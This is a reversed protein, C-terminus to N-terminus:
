NAKVWRVADGIVMRGSSQNTLEVKASDSSIYYRGLMNWGAEANQYDVTIEDVGEDHYIKYHMDRFVNDGGEDNKDPPPPAGGSGGSRVVMRNGTKGIYCYIDYFDPKDIKTKWTVSREGKSSRTYVSSRIYKGYYSSLAVKQWYEPAWFMNIQEYENRYRNTIKFLKKLPSQDKKTGADFGPDENDTILEGPFSYQPLASLIEEGETENVHNKSKKIEDVPLIIEGPVNKSFLTNVLMERPQVDLIIRIKRAERPGLVIIRSIDSAEMGRGQVSITFGGSIAGGQYMGTMQQGQGEGGTRFSVNFIGAVLEPNSATFTILYRVRDGIVIENAQLESFLFGPQEKRNFWDYLYPYFEFGFKDKMDKNLTTIDVSQFRHDDIYKHFWEKFENIGAKARFLNFLYDGKVTIVARITDSGPNKALIDRFSAERFILNARDNESLGGSIERFDNQPEVQKQLHAEFVANIVPFESSYFNNKFFYFSPGLRYRVPENRAVGNSYIFNEGSIFTNRIFDTFLRVQLEKDTIIQNNRIMRKKQRTFRRQFGANQLTSLKEPLLVMSPQLEARTQTSMRPYSYFQVPVEVLGLTRFPYKTSFSTELERMIGSVLTGLTDKILSLDKKYYDHGPFYYAIYRVSDVILTDSRYNGIALTIGTLPSEPSFVFWGNEKKMIGQSVATLGNGSKVRLSYNTFDIKLRAPDSPYYNLGPVPYWHSEPTLLVYNETLFAQRKNVNLLQDIRYPNEKINDSYDPFSFSENISGKYSINISDSEGPLLANVPEAEIIHGTTKYRINKGGSRVATVNLYPNLSFLYRSLAEKNNNIFKLEASAEITKKDHKLEISADKLSVFNGAEFQRNLDIVQKKEKINGKYNSYTSYACVVAGMLFAIMFVTAITTLVKSQPLRKFLLVTSLVLSLGLFFYLLRQTLLNSLNDFGIIGSKFMPLGFAMYDFISGFRYYLWFMDLAAFGLLILFTIAQNRIVSMLMFSFGLSFLITPVCIILLYYIYSMIDISMGKAIINMLLGICLIVIDLGLFLRLIGWTKGMIYEFNSMSRTYLVENTDVKKDRKLFDSALFIVLVAQGINLLYLNFLPVSAPMSIMSWPQDGIPSFFALNFITLIFLAGLSFLRFFWSRRLTKAEYKAVTRINHLFVM